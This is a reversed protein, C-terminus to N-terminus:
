ESSCNMSCTKRKLLRGIDLWKDYMALLDVSCQQVPHTHTGEHLINLYQKHCLASCVEVSAGAQQGERWLTMAPQPGSCALCLQEGFLLRGLKGLMSHGVAAILKEPAHICHKQQENSAMM